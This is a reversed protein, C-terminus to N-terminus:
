NHLYKKILERGIKRFAKEVNEGTKASTFYYPARLEKSAEELDDKTIQAKGNLDIKNALVIIPIKQTINYLEVQWMGVSYLTEKRTVDCVIIAGQSDRYALNQARKFEKQGMVDWIVLILDIILEEDKEYKIRKKLVKTGFTALYSDDFHDLVFKRILSTKGVGWDGVICIKRKIEKISVM